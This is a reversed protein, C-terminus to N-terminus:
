SSSDGNSMSPRGNDPLHFRSFMFMMWEAPHNKSTRKGLHLSEEPAITEIVVNEECNVRCFVNIKSIRVGMSLKPLTTSVLWPLHPLTATKPPGFM